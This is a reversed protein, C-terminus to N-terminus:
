VYSKVEIKQEKTIRYSDRVKSATKKKISIPLNSVKFYKLTRDYDYAFATALLWAISMEVEYDTTYFNECLEFSKELYEDDLFYSLLCVFAFRKYYSHKSEIIQTIFTIFESKNKRIIKLNTVALDCLAWNNIKPLYRMIMEKTVEVDKIFGLAYGFVCKEEYNDLPANDFYNLGFGSMEKALKKLDPSRVGQINEGNVLKAHFLAYKEDKLEDFRENLYKKFDM